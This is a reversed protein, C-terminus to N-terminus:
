ILLKEIKIFSSSAKATRLETGPSPATLILCSIVWNPEAVSARLTRGSVMAPSGPNSFIPAQQDKHCRLVLQFFSKSSAVLCPACSMEKELGWKGFANSLMASGGVNSYTRPDKNGFSWREIATTPVRLGEM